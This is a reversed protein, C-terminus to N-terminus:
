DIKVLKKSNNLKLEELVLEKNNLYNKIEDKYSSNDILKKIKNDIKINDDDIELIYRLILYIIMSKNFKSEKLIYIFRSIDKNFYYNVRFEVKEEITGREFREEILLKYENYIDLINLDEIIKLPNNIYELLEEKYISSKTKDRIKKNISSCYLRDIINYKYIDVNGMEFGYRLIFYLKEMFSFKLDLFLKINTIQKNKIRNVLKDVVINLNDLDSIYYSKRIGLEERYVDLERIKTPNTLIRREIQEVRQRTIGYRLAIEEGTEGYKYKRIIIDKERDSLNLGEFLEDFLNFNTIDPITKDLVVESIPISDDELIIKEDLSVLNYSLSIVREMFRIYDYDMDYEIHMEYSNPEHGLKNILNEKLKSYKKGLSELKAPIRITKSENELTRFLSQRIWWTAYTSFKYGKDPDFKSAAKILGENAIQRLDDLEIGRNQFSYAISDALRLNHKILENLAEKDGKKIRRGLEIEEQYSLIPIRRIEICYLRESDLGNKGYLSNIDYNSSIKEEKEEKLSEIDINNIISYISILSELKPNNKLYRYKKNSIINNVIVELLHNILTNDKVVKFMIDENDSVKIFNLFDSFNRLYNVINRIDDNTKYVKTYNNIINFPDKKVEELTIKDLEEKIIKKVNNNNIEDKREFLRDILIKKLQNSDFLLFLYSNYVDLIYNLLSDYFKNKNM